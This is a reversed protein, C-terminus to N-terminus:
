QVKMERGTKKQNATKKKKQHTKNFLSTQKNKKMKRYLKPSTLVQLAGQEPLFNVSGTM